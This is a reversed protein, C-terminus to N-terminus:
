VYLFHRFTDKSDTFDLYSMHESKVTPTAKAPPIHLKWDARPGNQLVLGAELDM